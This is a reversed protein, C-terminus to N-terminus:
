KRVETSTRLANMQAKFARLPATPPSSQPPIYELSIHDEAARQAFDDLIASVDPDMRQTKHADIIVQGRAPVAALAARLGAKHLFTVDESLELRCTQTTPDVSFHVFPRQYHDLLITVVATALGIGIGVLLDTLVIALVTVLFPIFQRAGSRSMKLFLAPKALKYGVMILVASLSALPILNILSAAFLVAVLLFIGHLITSSRTQGGSQINASSRVIVQTIPLGGIAGSLINGVGQALLERNTPTIRGHPDMKDTAEVSLLTELSAVVALTLAITWVASDQWLSWDPPTLISRIQGLGQLVPLQVFHSAEMDPLGWTGLVGLVSGLVVVVLSGPIWKSWMQKQLWPREWLILLTLSVASILIALPQVRNLMHPLESFTNEGDAQQFHLDGEPIADYGFAHPIQKLIIIIGIAALMGQIVSSPFYLGIIGARLGALLIQIGGALVVALLFAEYSPLSQIGNLVIVALGAAPGSVGLPSGSIMGVVIGGIVGAIIGSLPPAGSALAIGLCLPLAVLFVVISAPLDRNLQSRNM